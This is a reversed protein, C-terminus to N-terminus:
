AFELALGVAYRCRTAPLAIRTSAEDPDGGDVILEAHVGEDGLIRVSSVRGPVTISTAPIGPAEFAEM